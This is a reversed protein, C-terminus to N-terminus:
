KANGGKFLGYKFTNVAGYEICTTCKISFGGKYVVTGEDIIILEKGCEVCNIKIM